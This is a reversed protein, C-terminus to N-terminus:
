YGLWLLLSATDIQLHYGTGSFRIEGAKRRQGDYEALAVEFDEEVGHEEAIRMAQRYSIWPNEQAFEQSNM